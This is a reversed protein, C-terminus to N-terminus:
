FYIPSPCNECQSSYFKSMYLSCTPAKSLLSVYRAIRRDTMGGHGPINEGFDQLFALLLALSNCMKIKM